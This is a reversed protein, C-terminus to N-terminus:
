PQFNMTENQVVNLGELPIITGPVQSKMVFHSQLVCRLKLSAIGDGVVLPEGYVLQWGLIFYGMM